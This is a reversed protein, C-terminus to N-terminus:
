YYIKQKGELFSKGCGSSGVIATTQNARAILNLNNLVSVDKRSPYIFNINDFQVDGNINCILDENSRNEKL